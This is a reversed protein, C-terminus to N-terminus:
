RDSHPVSGSTDGIQLAVDLVRSKPLEGEVASVVAKGAMLGRERLPQIVTTLKRTLWPLEAGDFGTISLDEPVGLHQSHAAALAGSALVDNQAMIATPRLNHSLLRMAAEAGASAEHRGAEVRVADPFVEAVAKLRRKITQNSIDDIGDLIPTVSTPATMGAPTNPRMIVGVRRHGLQYLHMALQRMGNGDNVDIVCVGPQHPGEVGIMPIGRAHLTDVYDNEEDGRTVFVVADIPFSTVSAFGANTAHGHSSFLLPSLGHSDLEETLGDMTAVTAPNEFAYRVQEAIVVGVIGTKGQKFSRALMNPGGYGLEKAAHLVRRRTAPTIMRDGRFALSATSPAVGAKKAVDLMTIHRGM